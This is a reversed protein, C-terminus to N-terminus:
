FTLCKWGAAELGPRVEDAFGKSMALLIVSDSRDARLDKLPIVKHGMLTAPNNEASTVVVADIAFEYATLCRVAKRGKIGAGYVYISRYKGLEDILRGDLTDLYERVTRMRDYFRFIPLEDPRFWASLDERDKLESYYREYLQFMRFMNRDAAFSHIDHSRCFEDMKCFNMFYGHFNKATPPTTMVSEERYRRIFYEKRIYRVRDALLLGEFPLLEDEHEVGDPFRIGNRRLFSLDWFQRQVYCTWENQRVFLDFLEGGTIIEDPYVGKRVSLYSSYAQELEESEYIVQSDFFVSRLNDKEALGYLEEMSTQTIMDDSDLFYIYKGQAEDMGRNRGYGQRRNEALHIVKVRSDKEAYEDLIEGCRDPSADDICICELEELSQSLVSDLCAPLYKEVNYVPIVVSVKINM